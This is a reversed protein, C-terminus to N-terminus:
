CESPSHYAAWCPLANQWWPHPHPYRVLDSRRTWKSARRTLILSEVLGVDLTGPASIPLHYMLDEHEETAKDWREPPCLVADWLTLLGFSSGQRDDAWAGGRLPPSGEAVSVRLLADAKVGAQWLGLGGSRRGWQLVCYSSATSQMEIWFHRSGDFGLLSCCGWPGALCRSRPFKDTENLRAAPFNCVQFTYRWSGVALDECLKLYLMIGKAKTQPQDSFLVCSSNRQM